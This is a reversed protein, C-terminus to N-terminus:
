EEAAAKRKKAPKRAAAAQKKRAAAPAPAGARGTHQCLARASASLDLDDLGTEQGGSLVSEAVNDWDDGDDGDQQAAAEPEENAAVAQKPAGDGDQQVSVARGNAQALQFVNYLNAASLSPSLSAGDGNSSGGQGDVKTPMAMAQVAAAVAEAESFAQAAAAKKETADAKAALKEPGEPMAEAAATQQRQASHAAAAHKWAAPVLPKADAVRELEGQTNIVLGRENFPRTEKTEAESGSSGETGIVTAEVNLIDFEEPKEPELAVNTAGGGESKVANEPDTGAASLYELLPLPLSGSAGLQEIVEALRTVYYPGNIKSCERGAYTNKYHGHKGHFCIGTQVHRCSLKPGGDKVALLGHFGRDCDPRFRCLNRTLLMQIAINLCLEKINCYNHKRSPNDCPCSSTLEHGKELICKQGTVVDKYSCRPKLVVKAPVTAPKSIRATGAVSNISRAHIKLAAWCEKSPTERLHKGLLADVNEISAILAVDDQGQTSSASSMNM